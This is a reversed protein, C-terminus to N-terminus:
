KIGVAISPPRPLEMNIPKWLHLVCPHNNVYDSKPPHFQVVCEDDDWFLSKVWCMEEWTPIRDGKYSAVRASVHEWPIDADGQSAIIIFDVTGRRIYFAGDRQGDATAYLGDKKRGKDLHSWDSKM